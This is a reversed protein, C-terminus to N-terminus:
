FLINQRWSRIKQQTIMEKQPLIQFVSHSCDFGSDLVAVATGEGTYSVSSSNFIGTEYVDVLNEISSVDEVTVSKPKNYTDVLITSEVNKINNIKALNGYKVKVSIANIVTQYTHEVGLILNKEKLDNILLQQEEVIKNTQEIGKLTNAYKSVSEFKSSYKSNYTDILSENNLKIMVIVEDSDKYGNNELLYQAKIRSMVQEQTLKLDTKLIQLKESSDINENNNKENSTKGCSVGTVVLMLLILVVLIKKFM